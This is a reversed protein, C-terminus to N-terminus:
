IKRIVNCQTRGGTSVPFLQNGAERCCDKRYNSDTVLDLDDGNM